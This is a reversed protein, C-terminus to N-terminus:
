YAKKWADNVKELLEEKFGKLESESINEEQLFREYNTVPDKKTWEEILGEPYYKTGSAEEHGRVRFTMAEVIYPKGEKRIENTVKEMTDLVELINNGDMQVTNDIGYGIGKDIFQKCKFQEASPTSLGYGN